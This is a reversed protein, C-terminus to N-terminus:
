RGFLWGGNAHLVEGTVFSAEDSALYRVAAAIDRPQGARRMPTQSVRRQIGEETMRDGFFETDLVFGPAIANVTIGEPGLDGALSYTLGIVGAKAASYMGGGGRMAAISSINVIRGGPRRLYPRLAHVMLYTGVLNGGLEEWAYAAAEQLSADDSVRSVGGANNVIVDVTSGIENTLWDRFAAVEDPKSVDCRHWVVRGGLSDAQLQEAAQALVGERRGVLVVQEGETAFVGAIARGMGTGGGTVVVLRQRQSQQQETM